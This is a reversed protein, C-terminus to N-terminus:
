KDPQSSFTNQGSNINAITDQLEKIKQYAQQLQAQLEAVNQELILSRSSDAPWM